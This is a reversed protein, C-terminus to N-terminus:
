WQIELDYIQKSTSQENKFYYVGGWNWKVRTYQDAVNEKRKIVVRKIERNDKIESEETVGMPYKKALDMQFQTPKPPLTTVVEEKKKAALEARKRDYEEKMKARVEDEYSSREADVSSQAIEKAKEEFEKAKGLFM